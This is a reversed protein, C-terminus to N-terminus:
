KQEGELQLGARRLIRNVNAATEELTMRWGAGIPTSEAAPGDGTQLMIRKGWGDEVVIASVNRTEM